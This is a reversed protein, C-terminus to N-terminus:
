IQFIRHDKKRKKEAHHSNKKSKARKKKSKKKGTPRTQGECFFRFERKERLDRKECTV